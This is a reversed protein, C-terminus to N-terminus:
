RILRVEVPLGLTAWVRDATLVPRGLASATAICACDGLSLVGRHRHLLDAAPVAADIPLVALDLVQLAEFHAPTERRLRAVVELMNVASIDAGELLPAAAEAGPEGLLVALVASADLIM